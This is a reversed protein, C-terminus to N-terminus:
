QQFLCSQSTEAGTSGDNSVIEWGKDAMALVSECRLATIIAKSLHLLFLLFFLPHDSVPLLTCNSTKRLHSPLLVTASARLSFFHKFGFAAWVQWVAMETEMTIRCEELELHLVEFRNCECHGTFCAKASSTDPAQSRAKQWCQSSFFVWNNMGKLDLWWCEPRKLEPSTVLWKSNEFLTQM